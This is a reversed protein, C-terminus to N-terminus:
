ELEDLDSPPASLRKSPAGPASRREMWRQHAAAFEARDIRGDNNADLRRFFDSLAAVREERGIFGDGNKDYKAFIRQMWREAVKRRCQLYEPRTIAGDKNADCALLRRAEPGKLQGASLRGTRKRDLAAFVRDIRRRAEAEHYAMFEDRGINGDRNRDMRKLREDSARVFEEFTVVGDGNRDLRKWAQQLPEDAARAMPALAGAGPLALLAALLLGPWSRALRLFAAIRM